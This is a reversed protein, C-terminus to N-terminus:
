GLRAPSRLVLVAVPQELKLTLDCHLQDKHLTTCGAGSLSCRATKFLRCNLVFNPVMMVMVMVVMM